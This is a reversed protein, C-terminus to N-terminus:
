HTQIKRECWLVALSSEHAVNTINAHTWQALITVSTCSTKAQRKLSRQASRTVEAISREGACSRLSMRATPNDHTVNAEAVTVAQKEDSVHVSHRETPLRLRM